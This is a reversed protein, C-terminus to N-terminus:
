ARQVGLKHIITKNIQANLSQTGVTLWASLFDSGSVSHSHRHGLAAAPDLSSHAHETPSNAVVAPGEAGVSQKTEQVQSARTQHRALERENM